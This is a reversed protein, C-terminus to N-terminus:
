QKHPSAEPLRAANNADEEKLAAKASEYHSIIAAINAMRAAHGTEATNPTGSQPNHSLPRAKFKELDPYPLQIPHKEFEAWGGRLGIDVVKLLVRSLEETKASEIEVNKGVTELHEGIAEVMGILRDLREELDEIKDDVNVRRKSESRSSRWTEAIILGAAVSFLFGEALFNSGNQIAKADNLPRVTGHTEGLITERLRIEIRWLRQALGICFDRFRQNSRAYTKLQESIPKAVTRIALTALKVSAM